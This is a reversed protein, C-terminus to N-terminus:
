AVSLVGKRCKIGGLSHIIETKYKLKTNKKHNVLYDVMM